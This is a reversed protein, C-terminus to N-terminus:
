SKAAPVDGLQKSIANACDRMRDAFESMKNFPLRVSPVATGIAAIVSGDKDRIGAAVGRVGLGWEEDDYAVNSKKVSVLNNRMTDIDIITNPTYLKVHKTKFYTELEKEDLEALIIKGLATANLPLRDHRNIVELKKNLSPCECTESSLDDIGNKYALSIHEDLQLSLEELYPMAISRLYSNSTLVRYYNIYITGLYYPGRRKQQTLYGYKVLTAAIRSVTPKNLGSTEAIESTTLRPKVKLFLNLIILAKDLSKM